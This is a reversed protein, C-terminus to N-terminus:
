LAAGESFHHVAPFAGSRIKRIIKPWTKEVVDEVPMGDVCTVSRFYHMGEVPEGYGLPVYDVRQLWCESVESCRDSMEYLGPGDYEIFDRNGQVSMRFSGDGYRLLWYDFTTAKPHMEMLIAKLQAVCDDLQSELTHPIRNTKAAVAAAAGAPVTAAASAGLFFRRTMGAASAGGANETKYQVQM